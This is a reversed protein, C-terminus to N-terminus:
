ESLLLESLVTKDGKQKREHKMKDSDFLPLLYNHVVEAAIEPSINETDLKPDSM